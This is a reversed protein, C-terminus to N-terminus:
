GTWLSGGEIDKRATNLEDCLTIYRHINYVTQPLFCLDKKDKKGLEQLYVIATLGIKKIAAVDMDDTGCDAQNYMSYFIDEALEPEGRPLQEVCSAM